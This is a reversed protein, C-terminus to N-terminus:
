NCRVKKGDLDRYSAGSKSQQCFTAKWKEWGLRAADKGDSNATTYESQAHYDTRLNEMEWKAWALNPQAPPFFCTVHHLGFGTERGPNGYCLSDISRQQASTFPANKCLTGNYFESRENLYVATPNENCFKEMKHHEAGKVIGVGIAQGMAYGAQYSQQQREAIQRSLAEDSSTTTATTPSTTTTTSTLTSGFQHYTGTTVSGDSNNLFISGNRVSGTTLGASDNLFVNGNKITGFIIEGQNTSLFVNGGRINGIAMNGSSDHFFLQGNNSTGYIQHGDSDSIQITTQAALSGVCVFLIAVTQRLM